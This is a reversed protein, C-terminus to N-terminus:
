LFRTFVVFKKKKTLMTRWLALGDLSTKERSVDDEWCFVSLAKEGGCYFCHLTKTLM